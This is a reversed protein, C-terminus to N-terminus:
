VTEITDASNKIPKIYLKGGGVIDGVFNWDNREWDWPYDPFERVKAEQIAGLLVNRIATRLRAGVERKEPNASNELADLEALLTTM